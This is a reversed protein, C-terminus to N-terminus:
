PFSPPPAGPAHVPLGALLLRNRFAESMREELVRYDPLLETAFRVDDEEGLRTGPADIRRVREFRAEPTPHSDYASAEHSLVDAIKKEIQEEPLPSAPFQSYFSHIPTKQSLAERILSEANSGFRVDAAVVHRLGSEFAASGYSLAAWQDALVEQLRSAGHSIRLFIRFFGNLFLWAPNWRTATGAEALGDAMTHLSRRVALALGGGASDENRFHGYEHALISKLESLRMRDLAALGLILCREGGGRLQKRVSGREFVAIDAEPVLYVTDVPRTGVVGAVEDLLARLEPYRVLDLREGPEMEVPRAFLSRVMHFLTVVAAVGVVFLLKIPLRGIAFFLAFVGGALVLVLLAVVPISLYYYVCSTGLLLRYARRLRASVLTGHGDVHTPLTRVARLTLYSLLSGVLLLLVLGALWSGFFWALPSAVRRWLPTSEDIGAALMGALDPPLGAARAQELSRRADDIRGHSVHDVGEFFFTFPDRPALRRLEGVAASLAQRDDAQAAMMAAIRHVVVEDPALRVAERVWRQATASDVRALGDAARAYALGLEAGSEVRELRTLAAQTREVNRDGLAVSLEAGPTEKADPFREELLRLEAHAAPLNESGSEALVRVLAARNEPLDEEVVAARCLEIADGIREQRLRVYALRRTAHSFAPAAARVAVLDREAADLEGRDLETTAREFAAAAEPNSARLGEVIRAEYAPDRGGDAHAHPAPFGLVLALLVFFLDFRSM